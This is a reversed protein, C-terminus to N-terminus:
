LRKTELGLSLSHGVSSVTVSVSDSDELCLGLSLASGRSLFQSQFLVRSVSVSVSDSDELCPGLSLGSM